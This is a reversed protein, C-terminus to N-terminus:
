QEAMGKLRRAVEAAAQMVVRAASSVREVEARDVGGDALADYVEKGLQGNAVMLAAVQELVSMDSDGCSEPAKVLLFGAEHAWAALIRFDGTMRCIRVAEALTLHHTTNNPNVKNRLVAPSIGVLPGLSESGGKHDHVTLDAATTINM